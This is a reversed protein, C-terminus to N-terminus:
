AKVVYDKNVPFYKFGTFAKKVASDRDWIRVLTAAGRVIVKMTLSGIHILDPEPDHDTHLPRHEVGPPDSTFVVDEAPEFTVIGNKFLLDGCFSSPFQSLFIKNEEDNGISNRGEELWFLGVLNLWDLSESTVREDEERRIKLISEEYHISPM